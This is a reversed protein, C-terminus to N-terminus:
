CCLRPSRGPVEHHSNILLQGSTSFAPCSTWAVAGNRGPITFSQGLSDDPFLYRRETESPVPGGSSQSRFCGRRSSLRGGCRDPDGARGAGRRGFGPGLNTATRRRRVEAVHDLGIFNFRSPPMYYFIPTSRFHDRVLIVDGPQIRPIWVQALGRYDHPGPMANSQYAYSVAYAGM